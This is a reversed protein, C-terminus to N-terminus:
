ECATLIRNLKDLIKKDRPHKEDLDRIKTLGRSVVSNSKKFINCMQQGNLELKQNVVYFLISLSETRDYNSRGMILESKDISYEQCVVKIINEIKETLEKNFKTHGNKIIDLTNNIGYKDVSEFLNVLLEETKPKSMTTHLFRLCFYLIFKASVFIKM